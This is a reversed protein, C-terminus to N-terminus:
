SLLEQIVYKAEPVSKCRDGNVKINRNHAIIVTYDGAKVTWEKETKERTPREGTAFFLTDHLEDYALKRLFHMNAPM